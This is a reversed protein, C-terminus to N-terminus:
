EPPRRFAKDDGRHFGPDLMVQIGNELPIVFATTVQIGAKAIRAFKGPRFIEYGSLSM